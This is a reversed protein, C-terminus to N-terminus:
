VTNRLVTALLLMKHQDKVVDNGGVCQIYKKLEGEKMKVITDAWNKLFNIICCLEINLGVFTNM